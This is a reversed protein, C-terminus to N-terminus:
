QVRQCRLELTVRPGDPETIGVINYVGTRHEVRSKEDVGARYDIRFVKDLVSVEAGPGYAERGIPRAEEAWVWGDTGIDTDPEYDNIRDGAATLKLLRIRHDRNGSRVGYYRM